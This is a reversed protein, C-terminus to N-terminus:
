SSQHRLCRRIHKVRGPGIARLRDGPGNKPVPYSWIKARATPRGLPSPATSRRSWILAESGPAPSINAPRASSHRPSSSWHFTLGPCLARGREQMEAAPPRNNAPAPAPRQVIQLFLGARLFPSCHMRQASASCRASTRPMQAPCRSRANGPGSRPPPAAGPRGVAAPGPLSAPGRPSARNSPCAALATRAAWSPCRCGCRCTSRQREALRGHDGSRKRDHRCGDGTVGGDVARYHPQGNRGRRGRQM